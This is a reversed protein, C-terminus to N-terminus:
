VPPAWVPKSPAEPDLMGGNRDDRSIQRNQEAKSKARCARTVMATPRDVHFVFVNDVFSTPSATASGGFRRSDPGGGQIMFLDLRRGRSEEATIQAPANPQGLVAAIGLGFMREVQVDSFDFYQFGKDYLHIERAGSGVIQVVYTPSTFSPRGSPETFVDEALEQSLITGKDDSVIILRLRKSTESQVIYLTSDPLDVAETHVGGVQLRLAVRDDPGPTGLSMVFLEVRMELIKNKFQTAAEPTAFHITVNVNSLLSGEDDPNLGTCDIGGLLVAAEGAQYRVITKHTLHMIVRTVDNDSASYFVVLEATAMPALAEPHEVSDVIAASEERLTRYHLLQVTEIAARSYSQSGITFTVKEIQKQTGQLDGIMNLVRTEPVADIRGPTTYALMTGMNRRLMAKANRLGVTDIFSREFEDIKNAPVNRITLTTLRNTQRDSAKYVM